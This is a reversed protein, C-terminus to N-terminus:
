AGAERAILRLLLLGTLTMAAAGLLIVRGALTGLLATAADPQLLALLGIGVLPLLPVIRASARAQATAALLEDRLRRREDIGAAVARLSAALDGGLEDHILIAAVVLDGDDLACLPLLADDPPTGAALTAATQVVMPTLAPPLAAAAHRLAHDIPLGAGVARALTRALDGAGAGISSSSRRRLLSRM